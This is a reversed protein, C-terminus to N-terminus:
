KNNKSYTYFIFGDGYVKDTDIYRSVTRNGKFGLDKQVAYYSVYPSNPVEVGNQYVYVKFEGKVRKSKVFERALTIHSKGTSLDFPNPLNLIQNIEEETPLKIIKDATSYRNTNISNALRILLTRGEPLYFHGLKHMKLAASWLKYDIYKRSEFNLSDFFPLLNDYLSDIDTVMLSIVGTTKNKVSSPKVSTSLNNLQDKPLDSLYVKIAEMLNKSKNSQAVQFYPTLNKIGFTGEAEVFGLLWYPTINFINQNYGFYDTRKFNMSEKISQIRNFQDDSLKGSDGKIVIAEKFSLYDLVKVSQLNYRDFIPIIVNKIQDLNQVVFVATKGDSELRASGIGLKSQINQLVNLDDAHLAIKFRFRVFSKKSDLSIHFNGEGDTFGVFWQIWNPNLNDISSSNLNSLKSTGGPAEVGFPDRGRASSKLVSEKYETKIFVFAPFVFYVFLKILIILILSKRLYKQVKDQSLAKQM